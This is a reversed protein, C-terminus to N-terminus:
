SEIGPLFKFSDMILSTTKLLHWLFFFLKIGPIKSSLFLVICINIRLTTKTHSCHGQVVLWLIARIM